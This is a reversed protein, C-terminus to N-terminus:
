QPTDDAVACLQVAISAFVNSSSPNEHLWRVFILGDAEDWTQGAISAIDFRSICRKLHEVTAIFYPLLLSIDIPPM